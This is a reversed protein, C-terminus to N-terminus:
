QLDWGWDWGMELQPSLNTKTKCLGAVWGVVLGGGTFTDTFALHAFRVTNISWNFMYYFFLSVSLQALSEFGMDLMM